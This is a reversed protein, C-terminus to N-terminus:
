EEDKTLRFLHMQKIIVNSVFTSIGKFGMECRKSVRQNSIELFLSRLYNRGSM